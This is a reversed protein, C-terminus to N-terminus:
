VKVWVAEVEQLCRGISSDLTAMVELGKETGWEAQEEKGLGIDVGMNEM